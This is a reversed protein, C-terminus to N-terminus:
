ENQISNKVKNENIEHIVWRDAPSTRILTLYIVENRKSTYVAKVPLVATLPDSSEPEEQRKADKKIPALAALDKAQDKWELTSPGSLAQLLKEDKHNFAIAWLEAIQAPSLGEAFELLKGAAKYTMAQHALDSQHRKHTLSGSFHICFHGKFGNDPIGDGGHPMGNMSGAWVEDKHKILIARRNWSWHDSYIKKMIASDQKSLPQVDAHDRGARRQVRFSLGTELDVITVRTLKPIRQKIEEWELLQGYHKQKLKNIESELRKVTKKSLRVTQNQSRNLIIGGTAFEYEQMKQRVPFQIYAETFLAPSPALEAPAQALEKRLSASPIRVETAYAAHPSSKVIIRVASPETQVASTQVPSAIMMLSTLIIFRSIKIYRVM